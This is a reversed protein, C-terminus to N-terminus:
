PARYWAYLPYRRRVALRALAAVEQLVSHAADETVDDWSDQRVRSVWARATEALRPAGAGALATRLAAPLAFLTFGDCRLPVLDRSEYGGAPGEGGSPEGTLLATWEAVAQDAFFGACRFVALSEEQCRPGRRAAVADDPAVFFEAQITM